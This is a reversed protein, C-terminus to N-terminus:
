GLWACNVTRKFLSASRVIRGTLTWCRLEPPHQRV